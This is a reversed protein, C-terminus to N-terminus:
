GVRAMAQRFVEYPQAGVVTVGDLIFTPVATIGLRQAEGIHAEVTERYTGQEVAQRMAEGDLGSQNAADILVAWDGIDQGHQFYARFVALHFAEFMAHERAYEAAELARRSNSQVPPSSYPLEADRAMRKLTALMREFGPSDPM